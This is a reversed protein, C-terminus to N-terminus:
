PATVTGTVVPSVGLGKAVDNLYEQADLLSGNLATQSLDIHIPVSVSIPV